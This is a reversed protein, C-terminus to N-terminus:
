CHCQQCKPGSRQIQTNPSQETCQLINLLTGPRWGSFALSMAGGGSGSGMMVVLFTELCQCFQELDLAM